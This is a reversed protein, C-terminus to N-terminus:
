AGGGVVLRLKPKTPRLVEPLGDGPDWAPTVYKYTADLDYEDFVALLIGGRNHPPTPANLHRQFAVDTHDRCVERYTYDGTVLNTVWKQARSGSGRCTGGRPGEVPCGRRYDAKYRPTDLAIAERFRCSSRRMRGTPFAHPWVASWNIEGPTGIVGLDVAQSLAVGLALLDAYDGREHPEARHSAASVERMLDRVRRAHRRGSSPELNVPVIPAAIPDPPVVLRPTTATM